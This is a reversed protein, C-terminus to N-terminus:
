RRADSEIPTKSKGMFSESGRYVLGDYPFDLHDLVRIIEDYSLEMGQKAGNSRHNHFPAAHVALLDIKDQAIAAYVLAFQDDIENYTDTDLVMKIKGKPLDLSM